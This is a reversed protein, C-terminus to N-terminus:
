NEYSDEWDEAGFAIKEDPVIGEAVIHGTHCNQVMLRMSWDSDGTELIGKIGYSVPLLLFLKGVMVPFETVKEDISFLIEDYDDGLHCSYKDDKETLSKLVDQIEEEYHQLLDERQAETVELILDGEKIKVGTCVESFDAAAKEADNQAFDLLSAPIVYEAITEQEELAARNGHDENLDPQTKGSCASCVFLLLILFLIGIKRM